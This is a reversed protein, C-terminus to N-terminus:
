IRAKKAMEAMKVIYLRGVIFGRECRRLLLRFKDHLLIRQHRLQSVHVLRLLYALNCCSLCTLFCSANSFRQAWEGSRAAARRM